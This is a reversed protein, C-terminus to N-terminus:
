SPVVEMPAAERPAPVAVYAVRVRLAPTCLTVAFYLPSVFLASLTDPTTVTLMAGNLICTVGDAEVVTAGPPEKVAFTATLEAFM